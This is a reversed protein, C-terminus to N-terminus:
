EVTASEQELIREQLREALRALVEIRESNVMSSALQLYLAEREEPKLSAWSESSLGPFPASSVAQKVDVPSRVKLGDIWSPEEPDTDWEERRQVIEMLLTKNLITGRDDKEPGASSRSLRAVPLRFAEELLGTLVGYSAEDGLEARIYELLGAPTSGKKLHRRLGDILETRHKM